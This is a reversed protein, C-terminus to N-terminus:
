TPMTTVPSTTTITAKMRARPMEQGQNLEGGVGSIHGLAAQALVFRLLQAPIFCALQGGSEVLHGGLQGPEQVPHAAGALGQGGGALLDAGAHLLHGRAGLGLAFIHLAAGPADLLHVFGHGGHLLPGFLRHDEGLVGRFGGGLPFNLGAFRHFAHVGDLLRHFAQGLLGLLDALDQGQDPVDGLLGVEQGQVCGNLGGAGALLSAAERHHGLLNAIQGDAGLLGRFFNLLGQLADM